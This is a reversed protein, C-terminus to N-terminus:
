LSIESNPIVGHVFFGKKLQKPLQLGEGGTLPLAKVLTKLLM